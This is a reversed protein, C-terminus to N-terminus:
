PDLGRLLPALSRFYAEPTLHEVYVRRAERQLEEFREPGIDVHFAAVRRGIEALESQDLWVCLSRWDLEGEYPLLTDTDVFVPIRAASLAEYFRVSFNGGGRMALVYDSGLINGVFEKWAAQMSPYDLEGRANLAGAWFAPRFVFRTEVGPTHALVRCADARASAPHLPRGLLRRAVNRLWSRAGMGPAYGCFGVVPRSRWERLPPPGGLEDAVDLGFAPMVHERKGRRSRLLSTRFVHAGPLPVPDTSDGVFFVVLPRGAARVREAYALAAERREPVRRYHEWGAPLAAVDAEELPAEELLEAGQAQWARFRGSIPSRPDDYKDGSAGWLPELFPIHPVGPPVLGRDAHIRVRGSTL